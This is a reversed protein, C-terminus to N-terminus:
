IRNLKQRPKNDKEVINIFYFANEQLYIDTRKYSKIINKYKSSIIPSFSVRFINSCILCTTLVRSPDAHSARNILGPSHVSADDALRM